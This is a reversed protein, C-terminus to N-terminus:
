THKEGQLTRRRNRGIQEPTGTKGMARCSPVSLLRTRDEGDAMEIHCRLQMQLPSKGPRTKGEDKAPSNGVIGEAYGQDGKPNTVKKMTRKVRISISTM